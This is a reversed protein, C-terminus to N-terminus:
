GPSPPLPGAFQFLRRAAFPLPRVFLTSLLAHYFWGSALPRIM